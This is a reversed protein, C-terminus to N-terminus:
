ALEERLYETLDPANFVGELTKLRLAEIRITADHTLTGVDVVGCIAKAYKFGNEYQRSCAGIWSITTESRRLQVVIDGHLAHTIKAVHRKGIPLTMALNAFFDIEEVTGSVYRADVLMTPEIAKFHDSFNTILDFKLLYEQNLTHSLQPCIAVNTCASLKM